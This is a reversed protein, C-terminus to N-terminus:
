RNTGSRNLERADGRGCLSTGAIGYLGPGTQFSLGNVPGGTAFVAPDPEEVIRVKMGLSEWYAMVKRADALHETGPEVAIVYDFEAGGECRAASPAGGVPKWGAMGLHDATDTMVKVLQDRATEADMVNEEPVSCGAIGVALVAVCGLAVVRLRHRLRM